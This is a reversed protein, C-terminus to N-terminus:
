LGGTKAAPDIVNYKVNYNKKIEEKQKNFYEEAKQPGSKVDSPASQLISQKLKAISLEKQVAPALYEMYEEITMGMGKAFDETVECAEIAMDKNDPTLKGSSIEDYIKKNDELYKKAEDLSVSCGRKVAEQYLIENEILSDLVKEKTPQEPMMNQLEDIEKSQLEYAQERMLMALDLDNQTIRADGITAITADNKQERISAAQEGIYSWMSEAFGTNIAFFAILLLAVAAIAIITGTKKLM